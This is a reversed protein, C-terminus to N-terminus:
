LERKEHNYGDENFKSVIEGLIAEFKEKEEYNPSHASNEFSFFQKQPADLKDFYEKAVEYSTQYDNMGQFIYVPIKQAPIQNALDADIVTKWLYQLSRINAKMYNLKDGLNYERCNILATLAETMFNGDKMAGGYKTVYKREVRVANLWEEGSSYPPSGIDELKRIAKKDSRRSAESLVFDYSIKESKLQNGVQGIGFYAYYYEPYRKIVHSSLLTGWSHGMIFIKEKGFKEILYRTVERTDEIFQEFTMLEPTIESLRSKGAGRQDWYCVTFYHELDSRFYQMFPFEPSGPGGHVYLLVPNDVDKSRIIMTQEVGGIMTEEILAMGNMYPNGNGKALPTIKGPSIVKIALLAILLISIVGLVVFGLIKFFIKM